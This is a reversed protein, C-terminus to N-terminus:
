WCWVGTSVELLCGSERGRGKWGAGPTGEIQTTESARFAPGRDTWLARGPPSPLLEGRPLRLWIGAGWCGLQAGRQQVVLAYGCPPLPQGSHPSSPHAGRFPLSLPLPSVALSRTLSVFKLSCFSLPPFSPALSVNQVFHSFLPGSPRPTLVGPSSSQSVEQDAGCGPVFEEVRQDESVEDSLAPASSNGISSDSDVIVSLCAPAVQVACTGPPRVMEGSMGGGAQGAVPWPWRKGLCGPHDRQRCVPWGGRVMCTSSSM